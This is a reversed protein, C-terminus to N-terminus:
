DHYYIRIGLGEVMWMWNNLFLPFCKMVLRTFLPGQGLSLVEKALKDQVLLQYVKRKYVSWGRAQGM